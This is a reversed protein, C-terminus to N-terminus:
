VLSVASGRVSTKHSGLQLHELREQVGGGVAVVGVRQRVDRPEVPPRSGLGTRGAPVQSPRARQTRRQPLRQPSRVRRIHPPPQDGRALGVQQPGAIRGRILRREYREAM